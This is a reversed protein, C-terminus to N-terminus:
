NVPRNAHPAWVSLSMADLIIDMASLLRTQIPQNGPCQGAVQALVALQSAWDELPSYPPALDEDDDMMM